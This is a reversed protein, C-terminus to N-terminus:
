LPRILNQKTYRAPNEGKRVEEAARLNSEAITYAAALTATEWSPGLVTIRPDSKARSRDLCPLRLFLGPCEDPTDPKARNM